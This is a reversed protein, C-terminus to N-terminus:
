KRLYPNFIYTKNKGFLHPLLLPYYYIPLSPSMFFIKRYLFYKKRELLNIQTWLWTVLRRVSCTAWDNSFMLAIKCWKKRLFWPRGLYKKVAFPIIAAKYHLFGVSLVKVLDHLNADGTISCVDYFRQYSVNPVCRLETANKGFIRVM